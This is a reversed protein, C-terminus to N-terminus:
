GWCHHNSASYCAILLTAAGMLPSKDKSCESGFFIALFQDLICSCNLKMRRRGVERKTTRRDQQTCTTRKKLGSIDIASTEQVGLILMQIREHTFIKLCVVAREGIGPIIHFKDNVKKDVGTTILRVNPFAYAIAHVGAFM